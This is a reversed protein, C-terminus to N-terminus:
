QFVPRGGREYLLTDEDVIICVETMMITMECRGKEDIIGRWEGISFTVVSFLVEGREWVLICFLISTVSLVSCFLITLREEWYLAEGYGTEEVCLIYFVTNREM